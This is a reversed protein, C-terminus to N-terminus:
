GGRSERGTEPLYGLTEVVMGTRMTGKMSSHPFTSGPLLSTAGAGTAAAPSNSGWGSRKATPSCPYAASSASPTSNGPVGTKGEVGKGEKNGGAAPKRLGEEKRRLGANGRLANLVAGGRDRWQTTQGGSRGSKETSAPSDQDKTSPPPPGPRPRPQDRSLDAHAAPNHRGRTEGQDGKENASLRTEVPKGERENLLGARNIVAARDISGLIFQGDSSRRRKPNPCLSFSSSKGKAKDAASLLIPPAKPSPGSKELAKSRARVIGKRQLQGISSRSRMHSRRGPSIERQGGGCRGQYFQSKSRVFGDEVRQFSASERRVDRSGRRRGEGECGLCPDFEPEPLGDKARDA